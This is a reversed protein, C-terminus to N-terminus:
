KENLIINIRKNRLQVKTGFNGKNVNYFEGDVKVVWVYSRKTENNPSYWLYNLSYEHGIKLKSNEEPEGGMYYRLLTRKVQPGIIYRIHPFQLNMFDGM